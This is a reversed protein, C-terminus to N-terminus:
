GPGAGDAAPSFRDVADTILGDIGAALLRHADGAENVTYALVRLGGAHARGM